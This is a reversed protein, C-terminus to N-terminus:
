RLSPHPPYSVDLERETKYAKLLPLMSSVMWHAKNIRAYKEGYRASPGPNLVEWFEDSWFSFHSEWETPTHEQLSKLRACYRARCDALIANCRAASRMTEKEAASTIGLVAEFADIYMQIRSIEM